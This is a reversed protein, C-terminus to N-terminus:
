KYQTMTKFIRKSQRSSTKGRKTEDRDEKKKLQPMKVHVLLRVFCVAFDFSTKTVDFLSTKM